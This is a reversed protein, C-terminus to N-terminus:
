EPAALRPASTAPGIDGPLQDTPGPISCFSRSPMQEIWASTVASLARPPRLNSRTDQLKPREPWGSGLSDHGRRPRFWALLEYAYSRLSAPRADDALM